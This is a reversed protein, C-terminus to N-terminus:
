YKDLSKRAKRAKRKIIELHKIAGLPEDTLEDYGLWKVRASGKKWDISVIDEVRYQEQDSEALQRMLDESVDTEFKMLKDIHTAKLRNDSLSMLKARNNPLVEVVKWPGTHPTDLKQPAENKWLVYDGPELGTTEIPSQHPGVAQKAAEELNALTVKLNEYFGKYDFVGLTEESWLTSDMINHPHGYVLEHPTFGTAAQLTGNIIMRVTPLLTSWDDKPAISLAMWRLHRAVEANRREALGNSQPHYPTTFHRSVRLTDTLAKVIQNAYEPGNDSLLEKPLGHRSFVNDWLAQAVTDGDISAVPILETYRTFMDTAVIIYRAGRQDKPLPGM